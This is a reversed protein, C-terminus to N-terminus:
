IIQEISSEIFLSYDDRECLAICFNQKRSKLNVEDQVDNERNIIAHLNSLFLSAYFKQYITHPTKGTFSEVEIACKIIKYEEEIGEYSLSLFLM